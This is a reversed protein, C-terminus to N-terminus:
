ISQNILIAANQPMTFHSLEPAIDAQYHDKRSDALARHIKRLTDTSLTSLERYFDNNRNNKSVREVFRVM